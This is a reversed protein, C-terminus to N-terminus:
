FASSQFLCLFAWEELSSHNGEPSPSKTILVQLDLFFGVKEHINPLSSQLIWTVPIIQTHFSCHNLAQLLPKFVTKDSRPQSVM